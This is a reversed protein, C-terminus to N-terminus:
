RAEAETKELEAKMAQTAKQKGTRAEDKDRRQLYATAVEKSSLTMTTLRKEEEVECRVPASVSGYIERLAGATKHPETTGTFTLLFADSGDETPTAEAAVGLDRECRRVLESRAQHSGATLPMALLANLLDVRGARVCVGLGILADSHSLGGVREVHPECLRLVDEPLGRLCANPSVAAQEFLVEMARFPLDEYHSAIAAEGVGKSLAGLESLHGRGMKRALLLGAAHRANADNMRRAQRLAADDQAPKSDHPPKAKAAKATAKSAATLLRLVGRPEAEPGPRLRLAGDHLMAEFAVLQKKIESGESPSFAASNAIRSLPLGVREIAVLREELTGDSASSALGLSRELKGIRQALTATDAPEIGLSEECRAVRPKMEAESLLPASVPAASRQVQAPEPKDKATKGAPLSSAWQPAISFPVPEPPPTPKSSSKRASLSSPSPPGASEGSAAAVAKASLQDTRELVLRGRDAKFLRSPEGTKVSTKVSTKGAKTLPSCSPSAAQQTLPRLMMELLRDAQEVLGGEGQLGVMENAAHLTDVLSGGVPLSDTGLVNAIQAVKEPLAAQFPAAGPETAEDEFMRKHAETLTDLLGRRPLSLATCIVEVQKPLTTGDSPLQLGDRWIEDCLRLAEELRDCQVLLGATTSALGAKESAEKIALLYPQHPPPLGLKERIWPVRVRFNRVKATLRAQLINEDPKHVTVVARQLTEIIELMDVWKHFLQDPQKEAHRPPPADAIRRPETPFPSNTPPPPPDGCTAAHGEIVDPHFYQFCLPCKVQAMGMLSESPKVSEPPSQFAGGGGRGSGPARSVASLAGRSALPPPPDTSPTAHGGANDQDPSRDSRLRIQDSLPVDRTVSGSLSALRADSVFGTSNPEQGNEQGDPACCRRANASRSSTAAAAKSVDDSAQVNQAPGADM